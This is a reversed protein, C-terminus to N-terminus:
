NQNSLEWDMLTAVQPDQTMSIKNSEETIDVGINTMAQPKHKIAYAQRILPMRNAQPITNGVYGFVVNPNIECYDYQNFIAEVYEQRMRGEKYALQLSELKKRYNELDKYEACIYYFSTEQI